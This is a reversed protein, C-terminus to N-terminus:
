PARSARPRWALRIPQEAAHKPSQRAAQYALSAMRHVRRPGRDGASGFRMDASEPLRAALRTLSGQLKHVKGCVTACPLPQLAETHPTQISLIELDPNPRLRQHRQQVRAALAPHGDHVGADLDVRAVRGVLCAQRGADEDGLRGVLRGVGALRAGAARRGAVALLASLQPLRARWM